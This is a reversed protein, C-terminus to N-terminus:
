SAWSVHLLSEIGLWYLVWSIHSITTEKYGKKINYQVSLYLVWFIHSSATSLQRAAPKNCTFHKFSKIM